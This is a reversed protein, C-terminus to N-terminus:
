PAVSAAGIEAVARVAVDVDDLTNFPGASFRLSGGRETGLARHMEPACHLGSRVQVRYAADLISAAEQPDYGALVISVLPVRPTDATPGLVRVGDLKSFGEVFRRVLIDGQTELKAATQRELYEVGAALGLLGPVNLNGSEFKSPLVEPQRMDESQTGTGGQRVSRLADAARATMGLVGTGLPGLLGKHGSTALLDVDLKRMDVELHGVTQAADCLVFAQQRHAIEAIAAVDQVAGTVNSAHSVAVMRTTPQMATRIADPDVYGRSDCPAISVTIMGARRLFELPRLVSNHEVVTTVVHDGPQLLGHIALNLADTGNFAFVLRAADDLGVFRAVRRRCEEVARSVEVAEAYGGRGAPAGLYRQYHEVAQYVAEPKPWSTAANDLYIRRQRDASHTM